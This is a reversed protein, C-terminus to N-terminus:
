NLDLHDTESLTTATTGSPSPTGPGGGGGHAAERSGVGVSSGSDEGRNDEKDQSPRGPEKPQDQTSDAPGSSM